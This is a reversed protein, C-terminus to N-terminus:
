IDLLLFVALIWDIETQKCSSCGHNKTPFAIHCRPACMVKWDSQRPEFGRKGVQESRLGLFNAMWLSPSFAQIQDKEWQEWLFWALQGQGHVELRQFKSFYMEITLGGWRHHKALAARTFSYLCMGFSSTEPDYYLVCIHNATNFASSYCM